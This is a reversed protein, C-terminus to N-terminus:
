SATEPLHMLVINTANFFAHMGIPVWLCKTWHYAYALVIAFAWLPILAPLNVHVAAFLAGTVVASFLPSTADRVAAFLYGRFLFEEALPAAVCAVAVSLAFQWRPQERQMAEVSEQVPLAPLLSDIWEQSFNGAAWACLVISATGGTISYVVIAALPLRKLGFLDAVRRNRVWELIGYVMIAVFGFYALNALLGQLERSSGRAPEEPGVPAPESGPDAPPPAESGRHAAEALLVELFPNLLFFLAPFVVLVLDVGDFERPPPALGTFHCRLRRAVAYAAVGAVLTILAVIEFDLLIRKAALQEM